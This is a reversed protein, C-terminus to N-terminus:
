IEAVVWGRARRCMREDDGETMLGRRTRRMREGRGQVGLQYQKSPVNCQECRQSLGVIRAQAM